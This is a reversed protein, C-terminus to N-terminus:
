NLFLHLQKGKGVGGPGLICNIYNRIECTTISGVLLLAGRNVPSNERTDRFRRRPEGDVNVHKACPKGAGPQLYVTSGDLQKSPFGVRFM